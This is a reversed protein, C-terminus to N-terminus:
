RELTFTSSALPEGDLFFRVEWTGSLGHVPIHTGAVPLHFDLEREETPVTTVSVTRREYAVPGPALFEVDVMASGSIGSVRLRAVVETVETLGRAGEPVYLVDASGVRPPLPPTAQVPPSIGNWGEETWAAPIASLGQDCGSLGALLLVVASAKARM